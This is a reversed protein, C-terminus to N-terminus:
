FSYKNSKRNRINHALPHILIRYKLPQRIFVLGIFALAWTTMPSLHTWYETESGSFSILYFSIKLVGTKEIFSTYICINVFPVPPPQATAHLACAIQRKVRRYAACHKSAADDFLTCCCVVIGFHFIPLYIYIHMLYHVIYVKKHTYINFYYIFYVMAASLGWLSIALPAAAPAVSRSLVSYKKTNGHGDLQGDFQYYFECAM